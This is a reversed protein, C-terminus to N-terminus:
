MILIRRSSFICDKQLVHAQKRDSARELQYINLALGVSRSVFIRPVSFVWNIDQDESRVVERRVIEGMEERKFIDLQQSCASLLEVAPQLDVM